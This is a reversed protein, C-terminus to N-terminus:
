QSTLDFNVNENKGPKVDATMTSEVNYRPPLVMADAERGPEPLREIRVAHKGIVAGKVNTTGPLLYRLEYKGTSDTRGASMVGEGRPEFMVNAGELPKGDLTITGTVEGLEPLEVGRDCGSCVAIAAAFVVASGIRKM